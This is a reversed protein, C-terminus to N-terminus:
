EGGVKKGGVDGKTLDTGDPCFVPAEGPRWTKWMNMHCRCRVLYQETYAFVDLDKETICEHPM